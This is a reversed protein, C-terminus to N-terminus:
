FDRGLFPSLAVKRLKKPSLGMGGRRPRTGTVLFWTGSLWQPEAGSPRKPKHDNRRLYRCAHSRLFPRVSVHPDSPRVRRQAQGKECDHNVSSHAQTHAKMSVVSGAGLGLCGRAMPAASPGLQEIWQSKVRIEEALIKLDPLNVSASSM